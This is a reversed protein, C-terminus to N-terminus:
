EINNTKAEKQELFQVNLDKPLTQFDEGKGQEGFKPSNKTM